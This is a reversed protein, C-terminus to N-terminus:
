CHSSRLRSAQLRTFRALPTQYFEVQIKNVDTLNSACDQL